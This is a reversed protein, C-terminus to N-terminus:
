GFEDSTSQRAGCRDPEHIRNGSPALFGEDARPSGSSLWREEPQRLEPDSRDLCLARLRTIAKMRPRGTPEPGHESLGLARRWWPRRTGLELAALREAVRDLEDALREVLRESEAKLCAVNARLEALEIPDVRSNRDRKRNAPVLVQEDLNLMRTLNDYRLAPTRTQPNRLLDANKGLNVCPKTAM